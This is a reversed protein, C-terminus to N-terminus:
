KTEDHIPIGPPVKPSFAESIVEFFRERNATSGHLIVDDRLLLKPLKSSEPSLQHWAKVNEAIRAAIAPSDPELLSGPAIRHAEQLADTASLPLPASMLFDHFAAFHEPAAQWVALSLRALACAQPQDQTSGAFYPNCSRELPVPLVLVSYLEPASNLLAKIDSHQARCATCTYDSFGALVRVADRAGIFPIEHRAFTLTGNQFVVTPGPGSQFIASEGASPAKVTLLHTDPVKGFIQGPILLAAGAVGAQGAAAFLGRAGERSAKWASYLLAGGVVAAAGHLAACWPCWIKVIFLMLVAFWASGMLLLAACAALLQDATRGLRRAASPLTLLLVAMWLTAALLTVPIFFWLSWRSDLLTACGSSGGCGSLSARPALWKQFTLWWSGALAALGLIRIMWLMPLAMPSAPLM